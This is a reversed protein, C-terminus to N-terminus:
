STDTPRGAEPVGGVGPGPDLGGGPRFPRAGPVGGGARGAPAGPRAGAWAPLLSFHLNVWGHTPIDLAAQPLLAGYAVVPCCDPALTRLRDLFEPERPKNPQLVEVGSAVALQKVPSETIRRGRGSPADPRTVVAVVEHRPSDLLAQLSPVAPEPTGAFVLRM